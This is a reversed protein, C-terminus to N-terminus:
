ASGGEDVEAVRRLADRAADYCALKQPRTLRDFSRGPFQFGGLIKALVEVRGKPPENEAGISLQPQDTAM